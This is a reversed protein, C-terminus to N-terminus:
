SFNLNTIFYIFPSDFAIGKKSFTFISVSIRMELISFIIRKMDHTSDTLNLFGIYVRRVSNNHIFSKKYRLYIYVYDNRIYAAKFNCIREIISLDDLNCKTDLVNNFDINYTGHTQYFFIYFSFFFM